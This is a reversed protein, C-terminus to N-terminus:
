YGVIVKDKFRIDVYKAKQPEINSLVNNLYALSEKNINKGAKIKLGEESTYLTVKDYNEVNIESVNDLFKKDHMKIKEVVKIAEILSSNTVNKKIDEKSIKMGTFLPLKDKELALNDIKHFIVGDNDVKYFSGNYLLIGVPIREEIKIKVKNPLWRTIDIKKIEPNLKKLGKELGNTSFRFINLGLKLGTQELILERTLHKGTIDIELEKINFFDNKQIEIRAVQYGYVIGVACGVVLILVLFKFVGKKFFSNKNATDRKTVVRRIVVKQKYKKDLM